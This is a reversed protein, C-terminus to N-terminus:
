GTRKQALAEVAEWHAEATWLRAFAATADVELAPHAGPIAAGVVRKV